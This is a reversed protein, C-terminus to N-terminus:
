PHCSSICKTQSVRRPPLRLSTQIPRSSIFAKKRSHKSPKSGSYDFEGAQGISLGDSGLIVVKSVNPRPVRRENEEKKGGPISLPPNSATVPCLRRSEALFCRVPIQHRSASRQFQVFFPKDKCYIGENSGDDANRFLEKWNPPPSDVDVQFGHNQSAIYCRGCLLDTWPINHGRNGYKMKSTKGGASLAQPQHGSVLSQSTTRRRRRPYDRSRKKPPLLTALDM